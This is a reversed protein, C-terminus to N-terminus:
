KNAEAQHPVKCGLAAIVDKKAQVIQETPTKWAQEVNKKQTENLHWSLPMDGTYTFPALIVKVGNKELSEKVLAAEFAGRYQQSSTRLKLMTAVPAVMQKQWSWTKGPASGGSGSDITILIVTRGALDKQADTLWSLTSVMGSNDYYGGDAVHVRKSEENGGSARAIPSVYPFTASLRAATAIPVDWGNYDRGFQMGGPTSLETSSILFREGSEAATANFIVAPRTGLEVNQRWDRLNPPNSWGTIWANELAWGRDWDEAILSGLVPLTRLTDPYLMGWGAASLSSRSANYRVKELSEADSPYRGANDYPALAYMAGVSGGSVSSVLLLSSAFDGSEGCEAQLGTLVQATWAAAQIGGGATAVVTVPRNAGQRPGVNWKRIVEWAPLEAHAPAQVVRFVHDTRVYGTLLSLVLLTTLVPLRLRDLIFAAMFYFWTMLTLLFLLYFLAAPQRNESVLSPSYFFGLGYIALLLVFIIIAMEYGSRFFRKNSGDSSKGDRMLGDTLEHPLRGFLTDMKKWIWWRRAEWDSDDVTRHKMMRFAPLVMAATKGGGHEIRFHFFAAGLLILLSGALGLATGGIKTGTEMGVSGIWTFVVTPLALLSFLVVHWWKLNGPERAGLGVLSEFRSAGYVLMLRITVMITWAVLFEMLVMFAFAWFGGADFLGVFMARAFLFGYPLGLALIAAALLPFRMLYVYELALLIRHFWTRKPSVALPVSAAVM